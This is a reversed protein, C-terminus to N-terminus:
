SVFWCHRDLVVGMGGLSADCMPDTCTVVRDVHIIVMGSCRPERVEVPDDDTAGFPLRLASPSGSGEAGSVTRSGPGEVKAIDELSLEETRTIGCQPCVGEVHRWSRLMRTGAENLVVTFSDSCPDIHLEHYPIWEQEAMRMGFGPGKSVRRYRLRDPDFVWRSNCSDVTIYGMDTM